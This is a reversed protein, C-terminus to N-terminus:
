IWRRVQSIWESKVKDGWGPGWCLGHYFVEYIGAVPTRAQHTVTKTATSVLCSLGPQKDVQLCSACSQGWWITLFLSSCVQMRQWSLKKWKNIYTCPVSWCACQIFLVWVLSYFTLLVCVGSLKWKFDKKCRLSKFLFLKGKREWPSLLFFGCHGWGEAAGGRLNRRERGVRRM